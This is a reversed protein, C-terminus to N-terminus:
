RMTSTANLAVSVNAFVGHITTTIDNMRRWCHTENEYSVVRDAISSYIVILGVICRSAASM